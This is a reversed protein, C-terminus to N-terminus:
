RATRDGSASQSSKGLQPDLWVPEDKGDGDFDGVLLADGAGATSLVQDAADLSGNHNSDILIQDGRLVAIEDVGDGDFDGVLGIDGSQGFRCSRDENSARGDGNTDLLWQGDQYVAITDIGDGNFDGVLPLSRPDGFLFTHDILDGRGQTDDSRQILRIKDNADQARPPLNMPRSFPSQNAQDPLGPEKLVAEADRPWQPGYIGLDDRGDGDWDGVVPLDERSGLQAWLDSRGWRGDGDLDILWEGDIFLAVEDVGDGNFDGAVQKAGPLHFAAKSPKRSLPETSIFSWSGEELGVVTWRGLDLRSAAREMRERVVRQEPREGRPFGADLISLHWSYGGSFGGHLLLPDAPPPGIWPPLVRPWPDFLDPDEFVRPWEPLRLPQPPVQPEQEVRVESFWHNESRAAPGLSILLIGDSGPDTGAQRQLIEMLRFQADSWPRDEPNTAYSALQGPTDIGDFWGVPQEQYLHYTGAALGLFQFYGNADTIAVVGEPGYAGPLLGGADVPLGDARRLTIRVGAIPLDDSSRIGDRVPRLAMPPRGDPTRLVPGDQFVYGSIMAPPAECFDFPSWQQGSELVIGLFRDTQIVDVTAGPAPRQGGQFFGVPQTEEIGYIGPRLGDFRYFGDADTRTTQVRRGTADLLSIEVGGIAPEGQERVCDGDVDAWVRGALSGLRWEGFNYEVADKGSPLDIGEIRDGGAALYGVPRGGITGVQDKGDQYGDPTSEEVQYRGPMLRDFRYYGRADTRTEAVAQGSADRLVIRVQSLPPDAPDRKGDDLRDEYAYGSISAPRWECFDYGVARDGPELRIDVIRSPGALVGSANGDIAGPRASGELWQDPTTEVLTYVGPVVRDFRYSGDGTSRTTAIEKGAADLLTVLVGELPTKESNGESGFCDSAPAALCVSGELSAYFIETFNLEVAEQGGLPMSIEALRNTDGSVRRGVVGQGEIRGPIADLSRYGVPQEQRVEYVGPTLPQDAGFLYRGQSDTVATLDLPVSQGAAEKWLSLRVGALALEGSEQFGNRNDDVFVKGSIRIPLPQQKAELFAGASRDRKGEANDQPLDLQTADLATDYSNWFTGDASAPQFHPAEWIARLKAGQFEVGSTIPDVGENFEAPSAGPSALHQIEDVDISFVLKDGSQFHYFNLVLEMGGDVVIAEVRAAPDAAELREIRFGYAHDAGLGGDITDFIADGVSFGAPGQDTSLILQQLRTGQAGGLFQVHFLDGHADSGVDEEVYIMGIDIPEAYQLLRPEMAEMSCRRGMRGPAQQGDFDYRTVIGQLARSRHSKWSRKLAALIQSLNM